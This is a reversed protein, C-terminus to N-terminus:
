NYELFENIRKNLSILAEDSLQTIHKFRDIQKFLKNVTEPESGSKQILAEKYEETFEFRDMYYKTAIHDRFYKIRKKAIDANTGQYLYLSGITKTFDVTDNTYPMVIPIIRQKRKALIIMYMLLCGLALYYAWRMSPHKLIVRLPTQSESVRKGAKYYEDWYTPENPLVSLCSSIYNSVNPALMNFNTFIHPNSHLSITGKGFHVTVFNALSDNSIYGLSIPQTLLTDYGPVFYRCNSGNIKVLFADSKEQYQESFYVETELFNRGAQQISNGIDWEYNNVLGLTDLFTHDFYSAAIFVDNGNDVYALLEDRDLEDPSFSNNIFIYNSLAEENNHLVNYIPRKTVEVQESFIQDFEEFLIYNGYPKKDEKTYSESWDISKPTFNAVLMFVGLYVLLLLIIKRNRKIM